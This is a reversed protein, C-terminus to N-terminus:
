RKKYLLMIEGKRGNAASFLDVLKEAASLGRVKFRVGDFAVVKENVLYLVTHDGFGTVISLYVPGTGDNFTYNKAWYYKNGVVLTIGNPASIEKM